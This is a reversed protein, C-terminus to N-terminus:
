LQTGQEPYRAAQPREEGVLLRTAKLLWKEQRDGITFRYAVYGEKDVLLFINAHAIRDEEGKERPINLRDLIREIQQPDGTLLHQNPGTLGYHEAVMKLMKPTDKDPDMTIALLHVKKSELDSLEDLVRRAQKLIIPCTEACSAYIATIIVVGDNFDSLSIEAKEQNILTFRPPTLRTRLEEAPFPLEGKEAPTYLAPFTTGVILVVALGSAIAPLTRGPRKSFVRALPKQWFALIFLSLILPQVIFVVLYISEIEGTAPDYGLCWTKFDEAFAGIGSESVPVLSIAIVLLLFFLLVSITFVPFRWSSFFSEVIEM